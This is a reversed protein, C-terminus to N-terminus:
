GNKRLARTFRLGQAIFGTAQCFAATDVDASAADLAIEGCGAVRAAQSAAKLLLRGLGRRRDPPAVLLLDIQAAQRAGHLTWYWHLVVLGSPPGWEWAALATGPGAAIAALREALPAQAVPHGAGVLFEALLPADAAMAARISLGRRGSM